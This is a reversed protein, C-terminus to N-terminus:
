KVSMGLIFSGILVVLVVVTVLIMPLEKTKIFVIISSAVRFMPTLILLLSGLTIIGIAKFSALSSSLAKLNHPYSFSKSTYSKYSSGSGHQILFLVLGFLILFSSLAVGIKLVTSILVEFSEDPKTIM